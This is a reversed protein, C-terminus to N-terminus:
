QPQWVGTPPQSTYLTFERLSCTRLEGKSEIKEMVPAGSYYEGRVGLGLRGGVRISEAPNNILLMTTGKAMLSSLVMMVTDNVSSAFRLKSLNAASYV